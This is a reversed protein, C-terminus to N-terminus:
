QKNKTNDAQELLNLFEEPVAEETVEDYLRRLQDGIRKQRLKRSRDDDASGGAHQDMPTHSAKESM